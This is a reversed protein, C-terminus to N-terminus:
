LYRRRGLNWLAAYGVLIPLWFALARWLLLGALAIERPVGLAVSFLALGSGLIVVEGPAASTTTLMNASTYALMLIAPSISWGLALFAFYLGAVGAVDRLLNLALIVGFFQPARQVADLGTYLDNVGRQVREPTLIASGTFRHLVRDAWRALTHVIREVWARRRLLVLAGLVILLIGVIFAGGGNVVLARPAHESTVMVVGVITVLVGTVVGGINEILFIAAVSGVTLGQRTLFLVRLAMGPAGGVSFTRNLAAGAFFAQVLPAYPVRRKFLHTLAYTEGASLMHRASEAILALTVYMMNANRLSGLVREFGVIRPLLLFAIAGIAILQLLRRHDVLKYRSILPLM